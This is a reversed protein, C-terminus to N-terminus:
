GKIVNEAADATTGKGRVTARADTKMATTDVAAAMGTADEKMVTDKATAIVKVMVTETDAAAKTKTIDETATGAAADATKMGKGTVDEKTDAAAAPISMNM